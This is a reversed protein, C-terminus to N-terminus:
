QAAASVGRGNMTKLNEVLWPPKAALHPMLAVIGINIKLLLCAPQVICENWAISM